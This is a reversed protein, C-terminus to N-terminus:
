NHSKGWVGRLIDLLWKAVRELSHGCDNGCGCTSPCECRESRRAGPDGCTLSVSFDFDPTPSRNTAHVWMAAQVILLLTVLLLPAAIVLETSM